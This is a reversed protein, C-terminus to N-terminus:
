HQLFTGPSLGTVAVYKLVAELRCHVHLKRYIRSIYTQITGMALNLEAAMMKYSFGRSLLELIERERATLSEIQTAVPSTTRALPVINEAVPGTAPGEIAPLDCTSGFNSETSLRM